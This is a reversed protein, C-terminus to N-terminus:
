EYNTIPDIRKYTNKDISYSLSKSNNCRQLRDSTLLVGIIPGRQKIADISFRSCSPTFTCMKHNDHQSSIFNQYFRIAWILTLKLASTEDVFFTLKEINSSNIIPNLTTIIEVDETLDLISEQCFIISSFFILLLFLIIKRFFIVM